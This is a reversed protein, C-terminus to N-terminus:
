SRAGGEVKVWRLPHQRSQRSILRYPAKGAPVIVMSLNDLVLDGKETVVTLVAHGEGSLMRAETILLASAPWGLAILARRKELAYDECDGAGNAAYAWWEVKGVNDIDDAPRITVNFFSNVENLERWREPTMPVPATVPAPQCEEAHRMCFNAFGIPPKAGEEAVALPACATMAACLALTLTRM